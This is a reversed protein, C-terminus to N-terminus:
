ISLLEEISLDAKERQATTIFVMLLEGYVYSAMM